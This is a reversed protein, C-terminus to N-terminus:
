GTCYLVKVVDKQVPSSSSTKVTSNSNNAVTQKTKTQALSWAAEILHRKEETQMLQVLAAIVDAKSQLHSIDQRGDLKDFLMKRLTPLDMRQLYVAPDANHNNDAASTLLLTLLLGFALLAYRPVSRRTEAM